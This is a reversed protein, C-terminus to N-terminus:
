AQVDGVGRPIPQGAVSVIRDVASSRQAAQDLGRDAVLQRLGQQGAINAVAVPYQHVQRIVLLPQAHTGASGAPPCCIPPKLGWSSANRFASVSANPGTPKAAVM